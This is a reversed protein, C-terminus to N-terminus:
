SPQFTNSNTIPGIMTAFRSTDSMLANTTVPGRMIELRPTSKDSRASAPASSALMVGVM